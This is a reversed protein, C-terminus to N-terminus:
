RCGLCRTVRGRALKDCRVHLSGGCDCRCTWYTYFQGQGVYGSPGHYYPSTVTLRGFRRGTLDTIRGVEILHPIRGNNWCLVHLHHGFGENRMMVEVHRRADLLCPSPPDGLSNTLGYWLGRLEQWREARRQREDWSGTELM